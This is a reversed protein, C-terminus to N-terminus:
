HHGAARARGPSRRPLAALAVEVVLPVLKVSKSVHLYYKCISVSAIHVCVLMRVPYTCHAFTRIPYYKQDFIDGMKSVHVLYTHMHVVHNVSSSRDQQPPESAPLVRQPVLHKPAEQNLRQHEQNPPLM